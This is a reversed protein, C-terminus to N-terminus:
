KALPAQKGDLLALFADPRPLSARRTSRRGERTDFLAGDQALRISLTYLRCRVAIQDRSM